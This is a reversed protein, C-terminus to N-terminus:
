GAADHEAYKAERRILEIAERMGDLFGKKWETDDGVLAKYNKVTRKLCAILAVPQVGRKQSRRTGRPQVVAEQLSIRHSM